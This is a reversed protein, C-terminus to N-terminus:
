YVCYNTIYNHTVNMVIALASECMLLIRQKIYTLFVDHMNYAFGHNMM